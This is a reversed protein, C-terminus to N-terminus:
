DHSASVQSSSHGLPPRRLPVPNVRDRPVRAVRGLERRFAPLRQDGIDRLGFGDRLRQSRERWEVRDQEGDTVVAARAPGDMFHVDRSEVLRQDREGRM